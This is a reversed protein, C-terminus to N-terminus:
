FEQLSIRINRVNNSFLEIVKEEGIFLTNDEFPAEVETHIVPLLPIIIIQPQSSDTSQLSFTFNLFDTNSLNRFKVQFRLYENNFNILSDLM